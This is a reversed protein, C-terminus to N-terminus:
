PRLIDRILALSEYVRHATPHLYHWLRRPMQAGSEIRYFVGHTQSIAFGERRFCLAARRIHRFGAILTAAPLPWLGRAVCHERLLRANGRTDIYPEDPPTPAVVVIGRWDRLYERAAEQETTEGGFRNAPALLLFGGDFRERAFDLAARYCFSPRPMARGASDAELGEPVVIIPHRRSFDEM